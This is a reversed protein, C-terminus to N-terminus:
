KARRSTKRAISNQDRTFSWGLVAPTKRIEVRVPPEHWRLAPHIDGLTKQFWEERLLDYQDSLRIIRSVGYGYNLRTHRDDLAVRENQLMKKLVRLVPWLNHEVEQNRGTFFAHWLDDYEVGLHLMQKIDEDLPPDGYARMEGNRTFSTGMEKLRTSLELLRGLSHLNPTKKSDSRLQFEIREQDTDEHILMTNRPSSSATVSEMKQSDSSGSYSSSNSVSPQHTNASRGISAIMGDISRVKISPLSSSQLPLPPLPEDPPPSLQGMSRLHRLKPELTGKLCGESRANRLSRAPPSDVPISIRSQLTM